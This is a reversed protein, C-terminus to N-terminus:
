VARLPLQLGGGGVGDEIPPRASCVGAVVCFCVRLQVGPSPRIRHCGARCPRLPLPLPLPGASPARVQKAALVHRPVATMDPRFAVSATEGLKRSAMMQRLCVPWRLVHHTGTIPRHAPPSM